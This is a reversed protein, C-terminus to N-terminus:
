RLTGPMLFGNGFGIPLIDDQLFPSVEEGNAWNGRVCISVKHVNNRGNATRFQDAVLVHIHGVEEISPLKSCINIILDFDLRVGLYTLNRQNKILYDSVWDARSNFLDISFHSLQDQPIQQLNQLTQLFDVNIGLVLRKLNRLIVPDLHSPFDDAHMTIESDSTKKMPWVCSDNPPGRLEDWEWAINTNQRVESIVDAVPLGALYEPMDIVIRGDLYNGVRRLFATVSVEEQYEHRVEFALNRVM